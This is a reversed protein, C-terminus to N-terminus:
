ALLNVFPTFYHPPFTSAAGPLQDEAPHELQLELFYSALQQLATADPAISGSVRLTSSSPDVATQRCVNLVHYVIDADTAVHFSRVFLLQSGTVMVVVSEQYCRLIVSHPPAHELMRTHLHRKSIARFYQPLLDQMEIESRYVNVLAPQVNVNEINIRAAARPGFMVDTFADAFGSNFFGVPVMVAEELNYVLKTETYPADLLRSQSKVFDLLEPLSADEADYWELGAVKNSNGLVLVLYDNGLEVALDQNGEITESRYLEYKLQPM